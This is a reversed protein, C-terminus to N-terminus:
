KGRGYGSTSPKKQLSRNEPFLSLRGWLGELYTQEKESWGGMDLLRKVEAAWAQYNDTRVHGRNRVANEILNLRATSTDVGEKEETDKLGLLRASWETPETLVPEVTEEAADRGSRDGTVNEGTFTFHVQDPKLGLKGAVKRRLTRETDTQFNEVNRIIDGLRFDSLNGDTKGGYLKDKLLKLEHESLAAGLNDGQPGKVFLELDAMLQMVQSRKSSPLNTIKSLPLELISPDSKQLAELTYILNQTKDRAQAAFESKQTIDEANKTSLSAQAGRRERGFIDKAVIEIGELRVLQNTKTGSAVSEYLDFDKPDNPDVWRYRATDWILSPSLNETDGPVPRPAGSGPGPRKDIKAMSLAYKLRAEEDLRQAQALLFQGQATQELGAAKERLIKAAGTLTAVDVAGIALDKQFGLELQRELTDERKLLKDFERSINAQQMAIDRDIVGQMTEVFSNKGSGTSVSLFGGIAGGIISALKVPTSANAFPNELQPLQDFKAKLEATEAEHRKFREINANAFSQAQSVGAAGELESAAVGTQGSQHLRESGVATTGTSTPTAIIGPEPGVEQQPVQEPPAPISGGPVLGGRGQFGTLEPAVAPPLAPSGGQLSAGPAESPPSPAVTGGLVPLAQPLPGASQLPQPPAEDTLPGPGMDPNVPLGTQPNLLQGTVPDIYMPPLM